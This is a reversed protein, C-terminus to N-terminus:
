EQYLQRVHKLDAEPVASVEMSSATLFSDSPLKNPFLLPMGTVADSWSLPQVQVPVQALFFLGLIQPKQMGPCYFFDKTMSNNNSLLM